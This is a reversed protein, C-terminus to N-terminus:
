GPNLDAKLSRRKVVGTNSASGTEEDVTCTSGHGKHVGAKPTEQRCIAGFIFKGLASSQFFKFSSIPQAPELRSRLPLRLEPMAPLFMSSMSGDGSLEATDGDTTKV